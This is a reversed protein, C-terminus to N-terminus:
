DFGMSMEQSPIQPAFNSTESSEVEPKVNKKAEEQEALQEAKKKKVLRETRKAHHGAVKFEVLKELNNGAIVSGGQYNM